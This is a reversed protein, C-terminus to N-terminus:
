IGDNWKCYSHRAECNPNCCKRILAKASLLNGRTLLYVRSNSGPVLMPETLPSNCLVCHSETPAFVTNWADLKGLSFNANSEAITQLVPIVRPDEPSEPLPDQLAAVYFANVTNERMRDVTVSHTDHSDAYM